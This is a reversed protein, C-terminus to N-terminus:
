VWLVEEGLREMGPSCRPCLGPHESRSGLQAPDVPRAKLNEARALWLICNKGVDLLFGRLNLRILKDPTRDM